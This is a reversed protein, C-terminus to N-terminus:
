CRGKLGGGRLLNNQTKDHPVGIKAFWKGYFFMACNGVVDDIDLRVVNELNQEQHRIKSTPMQKTPFQEIEQAMYFGFTWVNRLDIEQLFM